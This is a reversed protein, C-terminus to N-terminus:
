YKKAIEVLKDKISEEKAEGTITEDIDVVEKEKIKETDFVIASESADDAKVTIRKVKRNKNNYLKYFDKVTNSTISKGKASPKFYIDVDKSLDNNGSFEKMESVSLDQQDITLTVGKIRKVDELVDLFEKSVINAHKLTYYVNDGKSDHYKIIRDNLYEFLDSVGIGDSNREFICVATDDSYFKILVHTKEEDGDKKKKLIGRSALTDTNIVKRRKDYRASVFRLYLTSEINNYEQEDLYVIKKAKEFNKKRFTKDLSVIHKCVKVLDAELDEPLEGKRGRIRVNMPSVELPLLTRKMIGDRRM